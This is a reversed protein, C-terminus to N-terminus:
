AAVIPSKQENFIHQLVEMKRDSQGIFRLSETISAEIMARNAASILISSLEFAQGPNFYKPKEGAFNVNVLPQGTTIDVGAKVEVSTAPSTQGPTRNQAAQEMEPTLEVIPTTTVSEMQKRKFALIKSM